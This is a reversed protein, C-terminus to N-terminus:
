RTVLVLKGTTKRSLLARLASGAEHLPYTDAVHPKLLGESYWAFLQAFSDALVGPAQTRYSGWHVGIVAINKVMVINAPIQPVRGSAFGILLIRGGWAVSRLSMDFLDGGVPDYIVDAGRNGTLARIRERVDERRSDVLHDAGHAAAVALKASGGATAIVEAGMAKGIEVASLGAGGAAGHVVLVERAQLAARWQLAIHSTGYTVPFGAGVVAEMSDPIVFTDAESVVVQQSFGGYDPIALVRDGVRCRTVQQGCELVEGAVEMGPTFPPTPRLQYKGAILLTDAFNIGCAHVGVRVQAPGM